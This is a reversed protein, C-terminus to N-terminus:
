TFGSSCRTRKVEAVINNSQNSTSKCSWKEYVWIFANLDVLEVNIAVQPHGVTSTPVVREWEQLDTIGVVVESCVSQRAKQLSWRKMFLYLASVFVHYNLMILQVTAYRFYALLGSYWSCGWNWWCLRWWREYSMGEWHTFGFERCFCVDLCLTFSLNFNDSHFGM